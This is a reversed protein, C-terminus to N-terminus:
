KFIIGTYCDPLNERIRDYVTTLIAMVEHSPRSVQLAHPVCGTTTDQIGVTAIASRM